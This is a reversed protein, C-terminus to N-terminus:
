FIAVPAAARKEPTILNLAGREDDAGWRDWNNLRTFYNEVEAQTPPTWEPM